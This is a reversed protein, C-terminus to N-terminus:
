ERSPEIGWVRVGGVHVTVRDWEIFSTSGSFSHDNTQYYDSWDTKNFRSDVHVSEHQGISGAETAFRYRAFRTQDGPEVTELSVRVSRTIGAGSPMRGAWDIVAAEPQAGEATYWYRVEVDALSLPHEGDNILSFSPNINNSTPTATINRFRLTVDAPAGPTTWTASWGPATLFSDSGFEIMLFAASAPPPPQGPSGWALLDGTTGDYVGVTDFAEVAFSDFTLTAVAGSAPRICYIRSFSLPYDDPFNPSQVTGAAATLMEDCRDEAPNDLIVTVLEWRSDGSDDVAVATISQFGNQANRTDFVTEYPPTDDNVITGDPLIFDVFRISGEVAVADVAVPVIGSLVAGEALTTFTVIPSPDPPIPKWVTVSAWLSPVRATM